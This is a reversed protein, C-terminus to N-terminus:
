MIQTCTVDNEVIPIERSESTTIDLGEKPINLGATGSREIMEIEIVQATRDIDGVAQDPTMLLMM